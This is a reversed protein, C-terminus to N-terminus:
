EVFGWHGYDIPSVYEVTAAKRMAEIGEEVGLLTTTRVAKCAGGASVAMAFAAASVSDPMNIVAVVDYEGLSMWQSDVTGGLRKAVPRVAELRNQPNKVLAAAAEPTYAVQLLYHSM